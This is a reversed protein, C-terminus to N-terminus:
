EGAIFSVSIITQSHDMYDSLRFEVPYVLDTEKLAADRYANVADPYGKLTQVNKEKDFYVYCIDVALLLDNEQASLSESKLVKNIANKVDRSDTDSEVVLLGVSGYDVSSVYSVGKAKDAEKLEEKILKEPFDMDLTFLTHKFSYILGYKRSMEKEAHSYGSVVEDLKVGLNVSGITRLEKHTYFEIANDKITNLDSQNHLQEAIQRAFADQEESSPIFNKVVEGDIPAPTSVTIPNFTYGTFEPIYINSESNHGVLNGLYIKDKIEPNIFLSNTLVRGTNQNYSFKKFPFIPLSPIRLYDSLGYQSIYLMKQMEEGNIQLYVHRMDRNRNENVEITIEASGEGSTPSVSIWKYYYESIKWPRNTTLKIRKVGAASPLMVSSESLKIFPKAEALGLQEIEVTKSIKGHTFVLSAKRRASEKNETATVAVSNYVEGSTPDVSLWEPVEQIRWEGNAEVNIYDEGGEQNILISDRDLELTKKERELDSCSLFITTLYLSLISFILYKNKMIWHM